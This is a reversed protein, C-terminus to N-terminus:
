KQGASAPVLMLSDGMGDSLREALEVQAMVKSCLRESRAPTWTKTVTGAGHLAETLEKTTHNQPGPAVVIALTTGVFLRMHIRKQLVRSYNFLVKPKIVQEQFLIHIPWSIELLTHSLTNGKPIFVWGVCAYPVVLSCFM